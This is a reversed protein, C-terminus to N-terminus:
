VNSQPKTSSRIPRIVLAYFGYVVLCLAVLFIIVTGWVAIKIPLRIWENVDKMEERALEKIDNNVGQILANTTTGLLQTGLPGVNNSLNQLDIYNTFESIM